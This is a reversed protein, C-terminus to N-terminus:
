KKSFRQKRRLTLPRGKVFLLNLDIFVLYRPLLLKM